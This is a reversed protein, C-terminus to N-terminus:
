HRDHYMITAVETDVFAVNGWQAVKDIAESQNLKGLPVVGGGDIKHAVWKRRKRELRTNMCEIFIRQVYVYLSWWLYVLKKLM